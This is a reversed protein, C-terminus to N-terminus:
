INLCHKGTAKTTVALSGTLSSAVTTVVVVGSTAPKPLIKGAAGPMGQTIIKM